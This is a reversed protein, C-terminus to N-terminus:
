LSKLTKIAEEINSQTIEKNGTLKKGKKNETNIIILTPTGEVKFKEGLKKFYKIGLAIDAFNLEQYQVGLKAASTAIMQESPAGTEESITTLMDRLAFYNPKNHVQFSLHFPVFNLTEPHIAHDVFFLKAQKMIEKSMPELTPELKRCAPCAWDTFLYVEIPSSKDGFVLNEQISNQAAQMADHRSTGLFAILFGVFIATTSTLGRRITTMHDGKDANLTHTPKTLKYVHVGFGVAICAAISLCVPCWTGIYYKQVIIFMGEAGLASAFALGEYFELEPRKRVLIHLVAMSFFFISGFVEFPLGFLRWNHGESCESSCLRFISIVTLISAILIAAATLWYLKDPRNIQSSNQMIM